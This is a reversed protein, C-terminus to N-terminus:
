FATPLNQRRKRQSTPSTLPPPLSLSFEPRHPLSSSSTTYSPLCSSASCLWAVAVCVCVCVRMCLPAAVLVLTSSALASSVFFSHLLSRFLRVFSCCDDTNTHTAPPSPPAHTWKESSMRASLSTVFGLRSSCSLPDQVVLTLAGIGVCAVCVYVCVCLCVLLCVGVGVAEGVRILACTRLCFRSDLSFFFPSFPLVALLVTRVYTCSYMGLGSPSGPLLLLIPPPRLSSSTSCICAVCLLRFCASIPLIIFLWVDRVKSGLPPLATLHSRSRLLSHSARILCVCVRVCDRM